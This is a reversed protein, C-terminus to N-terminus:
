EGLLVVVLAWARVQGLRWEATEEDPPLLFRVVVQSHQIEIMGPDDM